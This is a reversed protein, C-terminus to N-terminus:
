TYIFIDSSIWCLWYKKLVIYLTDIVIQSGKTYKMSFNGHLSSVHLYVTQKQITPRHWEIFCKEADTDYSINSTVRALYGYEVCCRGSYYQMKSPSHMFLYQIYSMAIHMGLYSVESHLQVLIDKFFIYTSTVSSM